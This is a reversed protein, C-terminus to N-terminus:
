LLLATALPNKLLRSIAKGLSLKLIKSARTNSDIFHGTRCDVPKALAQDFRIRYFGINIRARGYHISAL